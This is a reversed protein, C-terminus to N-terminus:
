RFIESIQKGTSNGKKLIETAADVASQQKKTINHTGMCLIIRDPVDEELVTDIYHYIQSVTAGRFYRKRSVGRELNGEFDTM